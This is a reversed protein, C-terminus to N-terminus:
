DVAQLARGSRVRGPRERYQCSQIGTFVLKCVQAGTEGRQDAAAPPLRWVGPPLGPVPARQVVVTPKLFLSDSILNVFVDVPIKM